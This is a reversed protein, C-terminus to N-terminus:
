INNVWETLSAMTVGSKLPAPKGDKLLLFAPISKVGCYQTSYEMEDVDCKLWLIDSRLSEIKKMDLAKCASCWAATFYIIVKSYKPKDTEKRVILSELFEQSPLHKM